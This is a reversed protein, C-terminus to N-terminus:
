RPSITSITLGNQSHDLCQESPVAFRGVSVAPLQPQPLVLSQSGLMVVVSSMNPRVTPDKQVCLLGIQIHRLFEVSNCSEETLLQDLLELGRGESSLQWAYAMLSPALGTLYFGSNKKGTMIKLLLVGFSYVDSKVSYLGEMAYEPAMYGYTGVIRATNAEGLNGQFIKAMGFDSIKPNLDHDLLVNGVKLDRHIIRHRSDQHLYLLGKAVGMIINVRKRWDLHIRRSPAIHKSKSPPSNPSDTTTGLFDYLEYRLYCSKSYVRAGRYFYCCSLIQDLAIQLCRSCNKASLDTTCQALGHMIYISSYNDSEGVSLMNTASSLGFAAQQTLNSMLKKVVGRFFDPDSVNKKNWLSLNLADDTTGFFPEDSYRLQCDEEWVIAQKSTSCRKDINKAATTVCNQCKTPSFDGFCLSNGYLQDLSNGRVTTNYFGTRLANLSLIRFLDIRQTQFKTDTDNVTFNGSSSTCNVYPPDALTPVHTLALLAAFFLYRYMVPFGTTGSM